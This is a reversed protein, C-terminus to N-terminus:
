PDPTAVATTYSAVTAGIHDRAWSSWIGCPLWFLSFLFPIGFIDIVFLMDLFFFFFFTKSWALVIPFNGPWPDFMCWLLLWLWLLSLVLDKVALGGPFERLM